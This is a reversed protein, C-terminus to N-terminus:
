FSLDNQGFYNAVLILFIDIHPVLDLKDVDNDLYIQNRLGFLIRSIERLSSVIDSPTPRDFCLLLSFLWRGFKLNFGYTKVWYAYFELLKAALPQNIGVLTSLFPPHGDIDSGHISTVDNISDVNQNDTQKINPFDKTGFCFEFWSHINCDKPYKLSNPRKHSKKYRIFTQRLYVFDAVLKRQQHKTPINQMVINNETHSETENEDNTDQETLDFVKANAFVVDPCNSAEHQVRKLYEIGNTPPKSLDEDVEIADDEFYGLAVEM